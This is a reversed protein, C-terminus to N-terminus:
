FRRFLDVTPTACCYDCFCGTVLGCDVCPRHLVNADAAAVVHLVVNNKEASMEVLARYAVSRLSSRIPFHSCIDCMHKCVLQMDHIFDCIM